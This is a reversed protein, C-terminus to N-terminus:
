GEAKAGEREGKLERLMGRLREEDVPDFFERDVREAVVVAERALKRGRATAKLHRARSDAPNTVRRVLGKKELARVVQSTTMPDAHAHRALRVQSAADGERTLWAIGALLRFQPQTLGLEALAARQRRQWANASVWLLFGNSQEPDAFQAPLRRAM